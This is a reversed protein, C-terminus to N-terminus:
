WASARGDLIAQAVRSRRYSDGVPPLWDVLCSLICRLIGQPDRLSLSTIDASELARKRWGGGSALQKLRVPDSHLLEAYLAQIERNFM